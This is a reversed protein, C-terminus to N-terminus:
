FKRYIELGPLLFFLFFFSCYQASVLGIWGVLPPFEHERAGASAMM